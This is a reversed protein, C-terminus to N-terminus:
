VLSVKNQLAFLENGKDKIDHYDVVMVKQKISQGGANQTQGNNMNMQPMSQPQTAQGFSPMQGGAGSASPASSSGGGSNDVALIKRVNAIGMAVAAGAALYPAAPFVVSIPNAFTSAFAATAARYTDITAQGVAVAKAAKSGQKLNAQLGGLVSGALDLSTEKVLKQREIEKQTYEESKADKEEQFKKNILAIETATLKENELERRKQEEIAALEKELGDKLSMIKIENTANQNRKTTELDELLKEEEQKKLADIAAQMEDAQKQEISKRVEFEQQQLLEILSIRESALLKENRKADEILQQYKIQNEKLEKDTGEKMLAIEADQIARQAALRDSEYQKRKEAAAKNSSAVSKAVEESKKKQEAVETANIVQIEQKAERIGKKLDAIAKKIEDAKEKTLDGSYKLADMQTRLAEVQAESTQIIAHQKQRELDVTNKGSIGAMKIEHDYADSVHEKKKEHAEVIQEQAAAQRRASDEAAFNTLGMWDLLDKLKQIVFDIAKQLEKFIKDLIGLKEMLAVVAAVIAVVVAVLLFLPNTLITKGISVFASGMQKLSATASKFSISGANQKFLKAGQTVRDFDMDRLGAGIEGLSNSVMEYNSGTAFVSVQKNVEAMKDKLTAAKAVLSQFRESEAPLTGLLNITERLEAKLSKVPQQEIQVDIQVKTSM